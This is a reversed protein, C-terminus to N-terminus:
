RPAPWLALATAFVLDDHVKSSTAKRKFACLEEVLKDADHVTDGILLDRTQLKVELASILHDRPVRYANGDKSESDGGTITVDCIRTTRACPRGALEKRFLEVVPSGVG